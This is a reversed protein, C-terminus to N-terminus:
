AIMLARPSRAPLSLVVPASREAFEANFLGPFNAGAQGDIRRRSKHKGAEAATCEREIVIPGLDDGAV